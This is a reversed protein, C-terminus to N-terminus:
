IVWKRKTLASCKFEFEWDCFRPPLEIRHLSNLWVKLNRNARLKKRALEIPLRWHTRVFEIINIQRIPHCRMNVICFLAMSYETIIKLMHLFCKSASTIIDMSTNTFGQPNSKLHIHSSCRPSGRAAVDVNQFHKM